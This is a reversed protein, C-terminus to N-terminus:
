EGLTDQHGQQDPRRIHLCQRHRGDDPVVVRGPRLHLRARGPEGGGGPQLDALARLRVARGHVGANPGPVVLLANQIHQTSTDNNHFDFARTQSFLGYADYTWDEVIEGRVGFVGRYDTHSYEDQRPGGEVNRRGLIVQGIGTASM